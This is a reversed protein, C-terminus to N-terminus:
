FTPVYYISGGEWWGGREKGRKMERDMDSNSVRSDPRHYDSVNMESKAESAELRCVLGCLGSKTQFTHSHHGWAAGM